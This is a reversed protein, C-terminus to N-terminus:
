GREIHIDFFCTGGNLVEFGSICNESKRIARDFKGSGELLDQVHSLMM